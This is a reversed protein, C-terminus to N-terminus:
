AVVHVLLGLGAVRRVQYNKFRDVVDSRAQRTSVVDERQARRRLTVVLTSSNKVYNYDFSYAVGAPGWSSGMSALVGFSLTM